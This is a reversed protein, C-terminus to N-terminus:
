GLKGESRLKMVERFRADAAIQNARHALNWGTRRYGRQKAKFLTGMMIKHHEQLEEDPLLLAVKLLKYGQYTKGNVIVLPREGERSTVECAEVLVELLWRLDDGAFKIETM